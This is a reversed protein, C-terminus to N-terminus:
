LDLVHIYIKNSNLDFFRFHIIKPTSIIKKTLANKKQLVKIKKLIRKLSAIFMYIM